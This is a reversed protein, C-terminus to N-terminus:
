AVGGGFQQNDVVQRFVQQREIGQDLALVALHVLCLRGLSGQRQQQLVLECQGNEIHLHRAHVTEFQGLQHATGVLGLVDRDDEDARRAALHIIGELAVLAPGHVKQM